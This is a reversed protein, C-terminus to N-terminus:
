NLQRLPRACIFPTLRDRGTSRPMSDLAFYFTRGGLRASRQAGRVAVIGRVPFHNGLFAIGGYLRNLGHLPLQHMRMQAVHAAVVAPM